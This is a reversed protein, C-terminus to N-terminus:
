LEKTARLTETVRCGESGGVGRSLTCMIYIARNGRCGEASYDSCDTAGLGRLTSAATSNTFYCYATSSETSSHSSPHQSRYECM